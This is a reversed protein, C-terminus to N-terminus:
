RTLLTNQLDTLPFGMANGVSHTPRFNSQLLCQHPTSWFTVTKVPRVASVFAYDLSEM